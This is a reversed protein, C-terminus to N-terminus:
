ETPFLITFISGKGAESEVKIVGNHNEIIKHVISLGLGTGGEKTTYFPEFIKKKSEETIGIGTDSLAIEVWGRNGTLSADPIQRTKITLTGGHPMADRANVALNIVCAFLYVNTVCEQRQFDSAAGQYKELEERCQDLLEGTSLWPKFYWSPVTGNLM